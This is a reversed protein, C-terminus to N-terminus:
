LEQKISDNGNPVVTASLRPIEINSRMCIISHVFADIIPYFTVSYIFERLWYPIRVKIIFEGLYGVFVLASFISSIRKLKGIRSISKWSILAIGAAYSIIVFIIKIKANDWCGCSIWEIYKCISGTLLALISLDKFIFLIVKHRKAYISISRISTRISSATGFALMGLAFVYIAITSNKFIGAFAAFPLMLLIGLIQQNKLIIDFIIHNVSPPRNIWILPTILKALLYGSSILFGFLAAFGIKQDIQKIFIMLCASLSLAVFSITTYTKNEFAATFKHNM